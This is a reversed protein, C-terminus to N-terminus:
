KAFSFKAVSILVGLGCVQGGRRVDGRGGDM